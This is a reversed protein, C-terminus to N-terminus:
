GDGRLRDLSATVHRAIRAAIRRAGAAAPRGTLPRRVVPVDGPSVFPLDAIRADFAAAGGDDIANRLGHARLYDALRAWRAGHGANFRSYDAEAYLESADVTADISSLLRHPLELYRAVELTRSDHVLIYAPGGAMIAALNGHLRSGFTFTRGRMVALWPAVSTFIRARGARVMPDDADNPFGAPRPVAATSRGYTLLELMGPDQAVYVVDDYREHHRRIVPGLEPQYPAANVSIPDSRELPSDRKRITLAPGDIFVSPCGIVQVTDGRFGLRGLYEATFEGRVGISPGRELVAAAFRRVTRDLEALPEFDGDITSQAGVGLITVPIRLREILEAWRKLTPEYQPRFANAFPVVYADFQENIRDADRAEVRLRDVEVTAGTAAVLRFAAHLFLLNGANSAIVNREIAQAPSLVEFPSATSRLLIRTPTAM